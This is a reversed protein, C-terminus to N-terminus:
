PGGDGRDADDDGGPRTDPSATAARAARRFVGRLTVVERETPHARGVLRRLLRDTKERKHEDYDLAALLDDFQDHLGEVRPEAARDTIEPLHDGALALSRCEYLAVTAAQGLNLTPYAPSAPITAVEDLRALEDNTLGVRERGFVLATPADVGALHEALDGAREFPYRVHKAGTENTIATFAVTHYETALDEFSLTTASPLVDERASGAFGYAEGDPDLPPPDVLLLDTFGFNKMARAVTGVNGPTEPDVLAVAPPSPRSETVHAGADTARSDDAM